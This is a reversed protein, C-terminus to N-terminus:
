FFDMTEERAVQCGKLQVRTFASFVRIKLHYNEWIDTSKEM